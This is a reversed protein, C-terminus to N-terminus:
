GQPRPPPSHGGGAPLKPEAEVAGSGGSLVYGVVLARSGKTPGRWYLIYNVLSGYKQYDVFGQPTWTLGPGHAELWKWSVISSGLPDAIIQLACTQVGTVAVDRIGDEAQFFFGRTGFCRGGGGNM